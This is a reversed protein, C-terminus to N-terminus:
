QQGRRKMGRYEPVGGQIKKSAACLLDVPRKLHLKTPEKDILDVIRRV